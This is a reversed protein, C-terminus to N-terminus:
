VVKGTKFANPNHWIYNIKYICAIPNKKGPQPKIHIQRKIFYM